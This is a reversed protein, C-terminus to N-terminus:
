EGFNAEIFLDREYKEGGIRSASRFSNCESRGLAIRKDESREEEKELLGGWM